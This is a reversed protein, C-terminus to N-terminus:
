HAVAALVHKDSFLRDQTCIHLVDCSELSELKNLIFLIWIENIVQIMGLSGFRQKQLDCLLVVHVPLMFM